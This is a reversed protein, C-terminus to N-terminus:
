FRSGSLVRRMPGFRGTWGRVTLGVIVVPPYALLVLTNGFWGFFSADRDYGDRVDLRKLGSKRPEYEEERLDFNVKERAYATEHITFIGVLFTVSAAIAMFECM